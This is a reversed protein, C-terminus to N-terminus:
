ISCPQSREQLRQLKTRKNGYSIVDKKFKKLIIEELFFIFKRNKINGESLWWCIGLVLCLDKYSSKFLYLWKFIIFNFYVEVSSCYINIYPSCEICCTSFHTCYGCYRFFISWSAFPTNIWTGVRCSCICHSHKNGRFTFYLM